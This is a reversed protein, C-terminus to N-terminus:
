SDQSLFPLGAGISRVIFWLSSALTGGKSFGVRLVPFINVFILILFILQMYSKIMLLKM